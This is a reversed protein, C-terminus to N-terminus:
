HSSNDGEVRKFRRDIIYAKLSEVGSSTNESARVVLEEDGGALTLLDQTLPVGCGIKKSLERVEVRVGKWTEQYGRGM